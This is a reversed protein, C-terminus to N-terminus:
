GAIDVPVESYMWYQCITRFMEAFQSHDALKLMYGAVGLGFSDARDRAEQSTTLVVVPILKLREDLKLARLLEIGGMRPTNLDLLIIDPRPKSPDRLRLLADEGDVSVDLRAPMQLQKLVRRVTMVDVCDDEVLLLSLRRPM